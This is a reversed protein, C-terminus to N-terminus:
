PEFWRFPDNRDHEADGGERHDPDPEGHPGTVCRQLGALGGLPCDSASCLRGFQYRGGVDGGAGKASHRWSQPSNSTSQSYVRGRSEVPSHSSEM